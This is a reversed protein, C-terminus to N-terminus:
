YEMAPETQAYYIKVDGKGNSATAEDYGQFALQSWITLNGQVDCNSLSSTSRGWIIDPINVKIVAYTVATTSDSFGATFKLTKYGTSYYNVAVNNNTNLTMVVPGSGDDFDVTLSSLTAVSKNFTLEPSFNYLVTAGSDLVISDMLPNAVFTNILQYPSFPRNPVDYYM